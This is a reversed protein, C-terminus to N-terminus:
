VTTIKKNIFELLSMVKKECIEGLEQIVMYLWELVSVLLALLGELFYIILGIIVAIAVICLIFTLLQGSAFAAFLFLGATVIAFVIWVNVMEIVSEVVASVAKCAVSILFLLAAGVSAFLILVM